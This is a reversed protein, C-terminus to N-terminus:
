NARTRPWKLNFRIERRVNVPLTGRGNFHLHTNVKTM